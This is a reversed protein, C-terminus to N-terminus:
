LYLYSQIVSVYNKKATKSLLINQFFLLYRRISFFFFFRRSMVVGSARWTCWFLCKQLRPKSALCIIKGRQRQQLKREAIIDSEHFAHLKALYYTGPALLCNQGKCFRTAQLFKTRKERKTKERDINEHSYRHANCHINSHTQAIM